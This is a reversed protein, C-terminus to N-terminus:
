KPNKQPCTWTKEESQGLTLVQLCGKYPPKTANNPAKIVVDELPNLIQKRCANLREKYYKEAISPETQQNRTIKDLWLSDAAIGLGFCEGFPKVFISDGFKKGEERLTAFRRSQEAIQVSSTPGRLISNGIKMQLEVEEIFKQADDKSIDSAIKPAATVSYAFLLIVVFLVPNISLYKAKM